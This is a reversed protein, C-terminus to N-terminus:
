QLDVVLDKGEVIICKINKSSFEIYRKKTKYIYVKGLIKDTVMKFDLVDECETVTFIGGYRVLNLKACQQGAYNFKGDAFTIDGTLDARASGTFAAIFVLILVSVIMKRKM